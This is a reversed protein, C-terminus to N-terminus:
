NVTSSQPPLPFSSLLTIYMVIDVDRLVDVVREQDALDVEITEVTDPINSVDSGPRYLIKIPAGSDILAAVIASSAWGRHGHIAIRNFSKKKKTQKRRSLATRHHIDHSILTCSSPTRICTWILTSPPKSQKSQKSIAHKASNASNEIAQSANSRM